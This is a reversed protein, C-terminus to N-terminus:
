SGEMGRARYRRWGWFATCLALTPLWIWLMEFRMARSATPDPLGFAFDSLPIPGWNGQRGAIPWFFPISEGGRTMADLLPHSAIVAFFFLALPGFRVGLYRFTLSAALAGLWLAFILSHTFGRHGLPTGYDASSLSDLDPVVPLLGALVWFLVRMPRRAYVCGMGLGVVAHTYITAM